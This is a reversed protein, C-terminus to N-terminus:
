GGFAKPAWPFFVFASERAKRLLDHGDILLVDLDAEYPQSARVVAEVIADVNERYNDAIRLGIAPGTHGADSMLCISAWDIEPFSRLAQALDTLLEEDPASSLPALEIGEHVSREKLRKAKRRAPGAIDVPQTDDDARVHGRHGQDEGASGNRVEDVIPENGQLEGDRLEGVSTHDDLVDDDHLEGGQTLAPMVLAAALSDPAAPSQEPKEIQFLPAGPDTTQSESVELAAASAGRARSSRKAEPIVTAAGYTGGPGLSAPDVPVEEIAPTPVKKRSPKRSSGRKPVSSGRSPAKSPTLSVEVAVEVKMAPESSSRKPLGSSSRRRRTMPSASLTETIPPALHYQTPAAKSDVPPRPVEVSAGNSNHQSPARSAGFKATQEPEQTAFPELEDRVYEIAHHSAVDVVVFDYERKWAHVIIEAGDAEQISLGGQEDFWDFRAAAARLEDESSFVALAEEGSANVLTRFGAAVPEWSALKVRLGGLADLAAHKGPPNGNAQRLLRLFRELGQDEESNLM